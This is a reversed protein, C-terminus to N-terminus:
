FANIKLQHNGPDYAKINVSRNGDYGFPYIVQQGALGGDHAKITINVATNNGGGISRTSEKPIDMYLPQNSKMQVIATINSTTTNTITYTYGYLSFPVLSLSLLSILIYTLM